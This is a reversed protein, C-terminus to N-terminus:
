DKEKFRNGEADTISQEVFKIETWFDNLRLLDPISYLQHCCICHTAYCIKLGASRIVGESWDDLEDDMNFLGPKIELIYEYFKGKEYYFQDIASIMLTFNSGYLTDDSLKLVSDEDNYSFALTGEIEYDDDFEPDDLIISSKAEMANVRELLKVSLSRLREDIHKIKELNEPNFDFIGNLIWRRKQFLEELNEWDDHTMNKYRIYDPDAGTYKIIKAEIEKLKEKSINEECYFSLDM